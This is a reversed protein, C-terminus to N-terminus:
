KIKVLQIINQSIRKVYKKLIILCMCINLAISNNNLEYKKLDNVTSSFDIKWNYQNIFTKLKKSIRQRNKNVKEYNLAVTLAYGFCKDDNKNKPNTTTQKDELLESYKMYSGGRNLRIKNLDYYLVDVGKFAFESGKM